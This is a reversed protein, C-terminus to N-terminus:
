AFGARALDAADIITVDVDPIDASTLGNLVAVEEGRWFALVANQDSDFRLEVEEFFDNAQPVFLALADEEVNFDEIIVAETDVNVPRVIAFIDDGTGGIMLDGNDGFLVDDGSGGNLTDALDATNATGFAALVDDGADGFLTDSGRTDVIGDDGRGGRVFDDGQDFATDDEVMYIDDGDGLFVRDDGRGGVASDNGEGAFITDNGSGGDITDNGEFGQIYDNGGRGQVDNAADNGTVRDNASGGEFTDNGEELVTTITEGSASDEPAIEPFDSDESDNDSDGSELILALGILAPIFLLALM